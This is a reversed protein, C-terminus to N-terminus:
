LTLVRQVYVSVCVCVCTHLIYIGSIFVLIDELEELNNVEVSIHFM